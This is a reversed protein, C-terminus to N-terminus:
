ATTTAWQRVVKVRSSGTSGPPKAVGVVNSMTVSIPTRPPVSSTPSSPPPPHPSSGEQSGRVRVKTKDAPIIPASDGEEEEEEEDDDDDDGDGADPDFDEMQRDEDEDEDYEEGDNIWRGRWDVADLEEPSVPRMRMWHMRPGNKAHDSVRFGYIKPTYVKGAARKQGGHPNPNAFTSQHSSNSETPSTSANAGTQPKYFPAPALERYSQFFLHPFTTGFFAGDVGQYRSSPPAYIDHCNPCYLKVTDLGPLDSRGSPVVNMGECYVRPCLGFIGAEYKDVMAQLGQRTLIYRQHVLGYLLEASAEVISVDPIKASEEDPEVDLVMDMAEKWFPVMSNLGTLNFDDEIFDEAVECFYEHGPLSCFWSIWTLTSTPTSSTYGEQEEVEEMGEANDVTANLGGDEPQEPNFQNGADDQRKFRQSM